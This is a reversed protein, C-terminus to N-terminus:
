CSCGELLPLWRVEVYMFGFVILVYVCVIRKDDEDDVEVRVFM